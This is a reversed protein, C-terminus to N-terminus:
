GGHVTVTEIPQDAGGGIVDFHIGADEKGATIRALAQDTLVRTLSRQRPPKMTKKMVAITDTSAAEHALFIRSSHPRLCPAVFIRGREM